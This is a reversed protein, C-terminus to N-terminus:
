SANETEKFACAKKAHQVNSSATPVGDQPSAARVIVMLDTAFKTLAINGVLATPNASSVM